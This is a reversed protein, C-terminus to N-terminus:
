FITYWIFRLRQPLGVPIGSAATGDIERLGALHLWRREGVVSRVAHTLRDRQEGFEAVLGLDQGAPEAQDRHHVEPQGPRGRQLAAVALGEVERFLLDAVLPPEAFPVPESIISLERAGAVRAKGLAGRVAGGGHRLAPHPHGGAEVGGQDPHVRGALDDDGGPGAAVALAVLGRERLDHGVAQAHVRVLDPEALTVGVKVASTVTLLDPATWTYEPPVETPWPMSVTSACIAASASPTSGPITRTMVPSVAAWGNPAPDQAERDV